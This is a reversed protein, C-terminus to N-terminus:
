GTGGTGGPMRLEAPGSKPQDVRLRRRAGATLVCLPAIAVPHPADGVMRIEVDTKQFLRRNDTLGDHVGNASVAKMPSKKSGNLTQRPVPSRQNSTSKVL